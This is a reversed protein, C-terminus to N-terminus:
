NSVAVLFRSDPLNSAWIDYSEETFRRVLRAQEGLPDQDIAIVESNSLLELSSNPTISTNM